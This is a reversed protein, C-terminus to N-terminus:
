KEFVCYGHNALGKEVAECFVHYLMTHGEQIHATRTEPICIAADALKLCEGGVQGTFLLNQGGKQHCAKMAEIINTSNGSTSISVLTDNETMLGQVQRSFVHEYGYDNGVATLISTDVTLSFAKLPSRNQDLRSVFEAVIHQADAASGGNGAFFLCGGQLYTDIAVTVAENFAEALADDEILRTVMDQTEFLRVKLIDVVEMNESEMRVYCCAVEIFCLAITLFARM